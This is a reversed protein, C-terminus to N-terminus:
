TERAEEEFAVHIVEFYVEGNEEPHFKVDLIFRDLQPYFKQKREAVLDCMWHWFALSEPDPGFAKGAVDNIEKKKDDDPLLAINWAAIVMSIIREIDEASHGFEDLLPQAVHDIVESMKVPGVASVGGLSDGRRAPKRRHRAKQRQKRKRRKASSTMPRAEM